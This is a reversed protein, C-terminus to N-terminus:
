DSDVGKEDEGDEGFLVAAGAEAFIRHKGIRLPLPHGAFRGCFFVGM